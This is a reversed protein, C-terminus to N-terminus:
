ALVKAIITSSGAASLGSVLFRLFRARINAQIVGGGSQVGGTVTTVTAITQYDSDVNRDATQLAVTAAGPLVPFSCIARVTFPNDPGTNDQLAVERSAFQAGGVSLSSILEGIEIQPAEGFGVDPTTAYYNGSQTLTVTGIGNEPTNTFSVSAIAVNTVNFQTDVACGSASFLQGAVPLQGEIVTVSYTFSSGNCAVATIKMRTDAVLRNYSGLLYTPLGSVAQLVNKNIPSLQYKPM